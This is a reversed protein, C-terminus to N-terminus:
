QKTIYLLSGISCVNQVGSLLGFSFWILIQFLQFCPLCVGKANYNLIWNTDLTSIVENVLISSILLTKM